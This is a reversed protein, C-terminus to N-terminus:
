GLGRILKGEARARPISPSSSTMSSSNASVYVASSSSRAARLRVAHGSQVEMADLNKRGARVLGLEVAGAVLNGERGVARRRLPRANARNHASGDCTTEVGGPAGRRDVDAGRQLTELELALQEAHPQAGAALRARARAVDQRGEAQAVELRCADAQARVARPTPAM